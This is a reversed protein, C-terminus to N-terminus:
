NTQILNTNMMEEEANRMEIDINELAVKVTYLDLRNKIAEIENKNYKRNKIEKELFAVAESNSDFRKSAIEKPLDDKYDNERQMYVYHWMEMRGKKELPSVADPANNSGPLANLTDNDKEAAGVANLAAANPTMYQSNQQNIRMEEKFGEFVEDLLGHKMVASLIVIAAVIAVMFFFLCGLLIGCGKKVKSAQAPEQAQQSVNNNNM